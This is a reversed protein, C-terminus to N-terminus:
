LFYYLVTFHLGGGFFFFFNPHKCEREMCCPMHAIEFKADIRKHEPFKMLMGVVMWGFGAEENDELRERDLRKLRDM